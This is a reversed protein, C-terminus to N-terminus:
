FSKLLWRPSRLTGGHECTSATPQLCQLSRSAVLSAPSVAVAPLYAGTSPAVCGLFLTPFSQEIAVSGGKNPLSLRNSVTRASTSLLFSSQGMCRRRCVCSSPPLNPSRRLPSQDALPGLLSPSDRNASAECEESVTFKATLFGLTQGLVIGEYPRLASNENKPTYYPFMRSLPTPPPLPPLPPTTQM